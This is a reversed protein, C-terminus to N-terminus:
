STRARSKGPDYIPTEAITGAASGTRLTTGPASAASEVRAFALMRGALAPSPAAISIRGVSREDLMIDAGDLRDTGEPFVVSVITTQAQDQRKELADRGQFEPKTLDVAWGMRCEWPSHSEDYDLGGMILGAEMRAMMLAAGGVPRLGHPRGAEVLSQWLAPVNDCPLLLEFGLEGTFGLRSVQLVHGGLVVDTRFAYYPLAGSSLDTDALSQLLQRSRPGQVSIQALDDRCERITVGPPAASALCDGLAPNAGMVMVREPGHLFVTCDDLMGGDENVVVGYAIRGPKMRTVERSFVRDVCDAAGPGTVEFKLLMSFEIVAVDERIARYEAMPDGWTVPVAFGYVDMWEAVGTAYLPALPTPRLGEPIGSM